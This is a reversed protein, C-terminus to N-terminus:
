VFLGVFTFFPGPDQDRSERDFTMWWVGGFYFIPLLVASVLSVGSLRKKWAGRSVELSLASMKLALVCNQARSDHASFSPRQVNASATACM